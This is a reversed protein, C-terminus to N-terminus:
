FEIRDFIHSFARETLKPLEAEVQMHISKAQIGPHWWSDAPSDLSVTRFNGDALHIVRSSRGQLLFPKLDFPGQGVEVSEALWRDKEPGGSLTAEIAEGDVRVTLADEYSKLSTTLSNKAKLRWSKEIENRLNEMGEALLDNCMEDFDIEHVFDIETKTPIISM